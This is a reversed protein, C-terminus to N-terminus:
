RGQAPKRAWVNWHASVSQNVIKEDLQISTVEFPTMLDVVDQLTSFHHPIGEDVGTNPIWTGEELEVGKGFRSSLTSNFTVLLLGGPKTVRSMEAITAAVVQRPNHFIVHISVVCDFTAAAFPLPASMDALALRVPQRRKTLKERTAALGNPAIDLGFMRYHRKGLYEMHRGAGCGLDLIAANKPLRGSEALIAVEEHINEWRNEKSTFLTNWDPM